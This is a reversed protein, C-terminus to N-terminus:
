FHANKDAFIKSESIISRKEHSLEYDSNSVRWEVNESETFADIKFTAPWFLSVESFNRHKKKGIQGAKITPVEIIQIM